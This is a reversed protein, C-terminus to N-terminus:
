RFTISPKHSLSESITQIDPFRISAFPPFEIVYLGSDTLVSAYIGFRDELIAKKVCTGRLINDNKPSGYTGKVYFHELQSLSISPDRTHENLKLLDVIRCEDNLIIVLFDNFTLFHFIHDKLRGPTAGLASHRTFIDPWM